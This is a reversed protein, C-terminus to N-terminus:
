VFVDDNIITRVASLMEVGDGFSGGEPNFIDLYFTENEEAITDGLVEVAVLAYSEDSYLNLKGSAAIYDEGVTASGDRTQYEVSLIGEALGRDGNFSVMFYAYSSGSSGEAVDLQVDEKTTPADPYHARISQDIWQQYHSVRQWAALEGFSSNTIDDIDTDSWWTSVSATYSAVGAITNNIFAAGGSDGPAILGEDYGVGTHNVGLLMGFADTEATGNDFDALLQTGSVPSWSIQSGLTQKFQEGTVDFTNKAQIRMSDSSDYRVTSSGLGYQGFGVETFEQGVENADRYLQYREASIPAQNLWLIAVDNNAASTDAAPYILIDSSTVRTKVGNILFSAQASSAGELLHAATLIARGDYLLTGTGVAGNATIRVVGDFGNNSSYRSSSYSQTTIM